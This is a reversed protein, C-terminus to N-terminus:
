EGSEERSATLTRRVEKTVSKKTFVWACGAFLLTFALAMLWLGAGANVFGASVGALSALVGTAIAYLPVLINERFLLQGIRNSTYGLTHYLLIERRRVVLNKRIVIVFGMIGLLLGLGGLTMFITLYTDTVTNFRALRDNTASIRVGYENLAQSLLNKVTEAETEETKFLFVESGAAAEEWIESFFKRDILIHGQFVTNPMTGALVIAARQGNDGDYYLTDGLSLGLSWTLVSADILAPYAASSLQLSDFVAQGGSGFISQSIRFSSAAMAQMDVGLVSPASVKNLNLCSADDAALRLCQLVGTHAPLGTLSLKERGAQTAMNHYIPISSECWLTYGGTGAQLGDGQAFSQRNLGVSFVIFVGASLTFFSLLAQKRGALLAKWALMGATFGASLGNRIILYDGWLAATAILIIGAAVFLAVSHMLIGGAIVVAAALATAFAIRRKKRKLLHTGPPSVPPKEKMARVIAARLLALSLLIGALFGALLAAIGPSVTFGGTQTAGKWVNGLLWVIVGTYLLGAFVGAVAAALVVPSSEAWLMGVIRKRPYGLAQLLQIEGRRQYLMESLPVLMLLMASLVIFFGLALFLGSFDVGNRAAHLGAERPYMLQIGFMEPHLGALSPTGEAVRISTASGYANSWDDAVADYAIIAKPTSRYREWYTEDEDTILSMDIPLDSDWETCREVDSLGPFNASLSPDAQLESLPVIRQVRFLATDTVLTKLDKSTYYALRITDGPQAQLRRATYDSLIIEDKRLPTDKYRDMATVFSYPVSNTGSEIANALYSFLRNADRNSRCVADVVERQLFVRDSLIETFGERPYVSLGSGTHTWVRNWEEGSVRRSALLLNIKGEAELAAALEHRNVFVNFPIVQENKMSINGGSRADIVSDCSLRMATTYNGTVFLSGSPVLGTAPLRLVIDSPTDVNLEEELARNIRATGAPISYRTTGWVFVPILKGQQSIFGNTLLVGQASGNFLPEDTLRDSLFGNRSFLVTETDGLRESVRKELTSRVSDGVVLSGTIVAVTILIAVAVLRYYRTHWAMSKYALKRINM